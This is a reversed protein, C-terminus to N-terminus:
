AQVTHRYRCQTCEWDEGPLGFNVRAEEPHPCTPTDAEPPAEEPILVMALAELADAIRRLQEWILAADPNSFRHPSM